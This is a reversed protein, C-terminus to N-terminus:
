HSAEAQRSLRAYIICKTPMNHFYPILLSDSANMREFIYGAVANEDGSTAAAVFNHKSCYGRWNTVPRLREM